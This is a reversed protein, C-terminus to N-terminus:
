KKETNLIAANTVILYESNNVFSEVIGLADFTNIRSDGNVNMALIQKDTPAKGKRLWADVTALADQANIIGDKNVDGFTMSIPKEEKVTYNKKDVFQSTDISADVMTVYSVIGTKESLEESYDFEIVNTGDDYTITTNEEVATVAIAVAKKKSSILDVDDGQYLSVASFSIGEVPKIVGMARDTNIVVLDEEAFADSGRKISMGTIAIVLEEVDIEEKLEFSIQFLEAPFKEENILLSKNENADFYVIRLKGTEEELHYSVDGGALRKGAKVEKVSLEEPISVIMDILKYGAENDWGNISIMADFTNGVVNEIQSPVSLDAALETPTAGNENGNQNEGQNDNENGSDNGNEDQNVQEFTVDSMNYLSNKQNMFRNYAVLAYCAQDTAMGNITGGMVHKFAAEDEVYHALLADVVSRDNKVFRTDTDPNIGWTTCAVIVQACSESNADGFSSYGGDENQMSSLCSFAGEVATAVAEQNKYPYLAQLTMSTIDPDSSKGSLAWGGDELRKQLLLDICQQRITADTTQYNNTDLAILAWIAGNIGQKKIWTFDDYPTILNWDGVSTADKGISSLAVILRSNDTSKSKHLAGNLNVSSAKQNVTEVIRNYYDAFYTSDKQYYDGRALSLVTWEGANTGFAPASITAALKAMTANLVTSVDQPQRKEADNEVENDAVKETVTVKAYAPASVIDENYEAGYSGDCWLYWTGAEAFSVNACGNDDTTVTGSANGLSTGYSVEYGCEDVFSTGSFLGGSRVLRVAIESGSEVSYSHTITGDENAFYHFGSASDSYFNWSTYGAIDYFDGASLTLQDATLGWGDIAPYEGNRYYNLNCDPVGFLGEEFFISGPSGSVSVTDWGNGVIKEHAYVFLHLATIDYNGDGDGDYAYGGLGYEELNIAELNSLPVGIYAIPAGNAGNMYKGDYSVSIYVQKAEEAMVYVPMMSCIMAIALLNCFVKTVLSKVCKKM